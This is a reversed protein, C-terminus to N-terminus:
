RRYFVLGIIIIIILLTLVVTIVVGTILGANNADAAAAAPSRGTNAEHIRLPGGGDGTILANCCLLMTHTREEM